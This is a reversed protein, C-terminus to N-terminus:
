GGEGGDAGDQQQQKAEFTDVSSFLVVWIGDEEKKLLRQVIAERPAYYRGVSGSAQIQIRLVQIITPAVCVADAKTTLVAYLSLM